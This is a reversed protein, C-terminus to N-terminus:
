RHPWAAVILLIVMVVFITLVVNLLFTTYRNGLNMATGKPAVTQAREAHGRRGARALQSSIAALRGTPHPVAPVVPPFRM